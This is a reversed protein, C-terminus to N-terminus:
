SLIVARVLYGEDFHLQAGDEGNDYCAEFQNRERELDDPDKITEADVFRDRLFGDELDMDADNHLDNIPMCLLQLNPFLRQMLPLLSRASETKTAELELEVVIEGNIGQFAREVMSLSPSQYYCDSNQLYLKTILKSSCNFRTAFTPPCALNNVLPCVNIDLEIDELAGVLNDLGDDSNAEIILKLTNLLPSAELLDVVLEIGAVSQMTFLLRVLNSHPKQTLLNICLNSVVTSAKRQAGYTLALSELPVPSFFSDLIAHGSPADNDDDLIEIHFERLRLPTALVLQCGLIVRQLHLSNLKKFSSITLLTSADLVVQSLVLCQLLHYHHLSKVLPPIAEACVAAASEFLRHRRGVMGECIWRRVYGALHSSPLARFRDLSRSLYANSEEVAPLRNTASANLDPLCFTCKFALNKFLHRQAPDVM